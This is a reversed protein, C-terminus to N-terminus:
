YTKDYVVGALSPAAGYVGTRQADHLPSSASEYENPLLGSVTEYVSGTPLSQTVSAYEATRRSGQSLDLPEIAVVRDAKKRAKRRHTVAVVAAAILLLLILGVGVGVGVFLGVDQMGAASATVSADRAESAILTTAFLTESATAATTYRAALRASHDRDPWCVPHKSQADNASADSVAYIHNTSVCFNNLGAHPWANAWTDTQSFRLDVVCM